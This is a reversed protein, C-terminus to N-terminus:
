NTLEIRVHPPFKYFFVLFYSFLFVLVRSLFRDLFCFCSLFCSSSWSFFFFSEKKRSWKRTRTRTKKRKKKKEQKRVKKNDKIFERRQSQSLYCFSILCPNNPVRYRYLKHLHYVTLVMCMLNILIWLVNLIYHRYPGQFFLVRQFTSM